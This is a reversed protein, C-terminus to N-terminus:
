SLPLNLYSNEASKLLFPRPATQNLHFHPYTSLVWLIAIIKICNGGGKLKGFGHMGM